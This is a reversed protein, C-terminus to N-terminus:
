ARSIRMRDILTSTMTMGNDSVATYVLQITYAANASVTFTSAAISVTSVTNVAIVVFMSSDSTAGGTTRQIRFSVIVQGNVNNGSTPNLTLSPLAITVSTSGRTCFTYFPNSTVQGGGIVISGQSFFFNYTEVTPVVYGKVALNGTSANLAMLAQDSSNEWIFGELASNLARNRLAFSTVDAAPFFCAAATGPYNSNTAPLSLYTAYTTNTTVDYNIGRKNGTSGTVTVQGNLVTPINPAVQLGTSSVSVTDVGGVSLMHKSTLPVNYWMTGLAIGIAFDVAATTSSEGWLRLRTGLNVSNADSPLGTSGKGWEITNLITSTGMTLNTGDIVALNMGSSSATFSNTVTLGGGLTTLGTGVSFTSTGTISVADNHTTIGSTSLTTLSTNGASVTLGGGLTTLGTGVSLTSTGSISVAANHTTAASTSLTTLSTNGASVTLGNGLTTAGTVSIGVNSVLASTTDNYLFSIQGTSGM